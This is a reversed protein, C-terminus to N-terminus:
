SRRSWIPAFMAREHMLQQIRYLLAERRKREMMFPTIVGATEAPDFWTPALSIHVAFTIPGEPAAGPPLLAVTLAIAVAFVPWSRHNM